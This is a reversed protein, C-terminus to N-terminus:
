LLFSIKSQLVRLLSPKLTYDFTKTNPGTLACVDALLWSHTNYDSMKSEWIQFSREMLRLSTLARRGGERHWGLAMWLPIGPGALSPKRVLRRFLELGM